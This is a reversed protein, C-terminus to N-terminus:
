DDRQQLGYLSRAARTSCHWVEAQTTGRITAVRQCVEGLMWPHNNSGKCGPPALYPSDTELILRGADMMRIADEADPTPNRLITATIGFFTNPQAEIWEQMEGPGGTFCHRHVPHLESLTEAMIELCDRSAQGDGKDRCHIVVPLQRPKAFTLVKRLLRQQKYQEQATNASTYDLGVEGLGIVKEEQLIQELRRVQAVTTRAARHPHIGFTLQIGRGTKPIFSDTNTRWTEPFCYSTIAYELRPTNSLRADLPIDYISVVGFRKLVKELHFHTDIGIRNDEAPPNIGVRAGSPGLKESISFFGYKETPSLQGALLAAARWPLLSEIAPTRSGYQSHQKFLSTLRQEEETGPQGQGLQDAFNNRYFSLLVTPTALRLARCLQRLAGHVLQVWEQGHTELCFTGHHGTKRLHNEFRGPAGFRQHCEWCATSPM